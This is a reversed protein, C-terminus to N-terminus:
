NGNKIRRKLIFIYGIYLLILFLFSFILCIWLRIKNSTIISICVSIIFMLMTILIWMDFFREGDNM